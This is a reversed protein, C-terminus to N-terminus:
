DEMGAMLYAKWGKKMNDDWDQMTEVRVLRGAETMPGGVKAMAAVLAAYPCVPGREEPFLPLLEFVQGDAQGQVANKAKQHKEQQAGTADNALKSNALKYQAKFWSQGHHAVGKSHLHYLIRDEGMQEVWEKLTDPSQFTVPLVQGGEM